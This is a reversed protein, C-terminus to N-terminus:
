YGCPDKNPDYVPVAPPSLLDAFSKLTGGPSLGCIARMGPSLPPQMRAKGVVHAVENIVRDLREIHKRLLGAGAPRVRKTGYDGSDKWIRIRENHDKIAEARVERLQKLIEEVLIGEGYEM